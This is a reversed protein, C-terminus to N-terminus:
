KLGSSKLGFDGAWKQLAVCYVARRWVKLCVFCNLSSKHIFMYHGCHFSVIGFIRFLYEWFFFNRTRLGTEVSFGCDHKQSRNIYEWSRNTQEAAPFYTSRDQSVSMHIHFNPGLGRLEKEPICLHFKWQLALAKPLSVKRKRIELANRVFM